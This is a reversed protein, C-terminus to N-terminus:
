KFYAPKKEWAETSWTVHAITRNTYLKDELQDVRIHDSEKVRTFTDLLDFGNILKKFVCCEIFKPLKLEVVSDIGNDLTSLTQLFM